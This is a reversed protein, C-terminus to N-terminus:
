ARLQAHEHVHREETSEVKAGVLRMTMSLYTATVEAISLREDPRFWVIVGTMMQILAMATLGVDDISFAGSDAGDRLIARLEKEYATRLRLIHTLREPSLSRLEMNSVHTAHRREIHFAIHNRVYASLRRRPEADAPRAREWAAGLGEMHERMLTFLLEEKTPFYRYLAAAQVGVEAALQRMSMAEYGQRAILNVAAERVAAETKEGDSGTTRAM